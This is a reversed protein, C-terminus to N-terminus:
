GPERRLLRVRWEGASGLQETVVVRFRAGDHLELVGEDGANIAPSGDPRDLSIRMLGRGGELAEVQGALTTAGFHAVLTNFARM